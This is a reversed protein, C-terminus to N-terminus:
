TNLLKYATCAAPHMFEGAQPAYLLVLAELPLNPPNILFYDAILRLVSDFFILWVFVPQSILKPAERRTSRMEGKRAQTESLV